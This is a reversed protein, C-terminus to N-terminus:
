SDVAAPLNLVSQSLQTFVAGGEVTAPTHDEAVKQLYAIEDPDNLSIPADVLKLQNRIKTYLVVPGFRVLRGSIRQPKGIIYYHDLALKKPAPEFGLLEAFLSLCEIVGDQYANELSAIGDDAIAALDTQDFNLDLMGLCANQITAVTDPGKSVLVDADNLIKIANRISIMEKITPSRRLAIDDTSSQYMPLDNGLVIIPHVDGDAPPIYLELDRATHPKYPSMELLLRVANIDTRKGSDVSGMSALVKKTLQKIKIKKLLNERFSM